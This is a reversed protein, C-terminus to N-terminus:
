GPVEQFLLFIPKKTKAAIKTAQEFDRLWKVNGLEVPQDAAPQSPQDAFTSVSNTSNHFPEMAIATLAVALLILVAAIRLM